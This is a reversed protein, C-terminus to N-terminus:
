AFRRDTADEMVPPDDLKPRRSEASQSFRAAAGLVQL